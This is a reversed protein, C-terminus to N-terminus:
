PEIGDNGQILIYIEHNKQVLEFTLTAKGGSSFIFGQEEENIIWRGDAFEGERFRFKEKPLWIAQKNDGMIKYFIVSGDSTLGTEFTGDDDPDPDVGFALFILNDPLDFTYTRKTGDCSDAEDVNRAIGSSIMTYLKSEVTGCETEVQNKALAVSLNNYGVSIMVVMAAIVVISIILRIPIMDSATNDMKRM